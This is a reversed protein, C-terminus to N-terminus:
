ASSLENIFGEYVLCEFFADADHADTVADTEGDECDYDGGQFALGECEEEAGFILLATTATGPCFM